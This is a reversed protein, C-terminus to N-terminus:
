PSAPSLRFFKGPGFLAIDFPSNAGPVVAWNGTVSDSHELVINPSGWVLSFAGAVRFVQLKPELTLIAPLSQVNERGASVRVQYQGADGATVNGIQVTASQAGSIRTGDTLAQNGFFWQYTLAAGKAASAAVHFTATDGTQRYQSTPQENILLQDLALLEWTENGALQSTGPDYLGGMIVVAHRRSDYAAAFRMRGSPVSPSRVIELPYADELLLRNFRILDPGKPNLRQLVLTEVSLSVAAFRSADFISSGKVTNNLNTELASKIEDASTNPDTLVQQTEASFQNWLFLSVPDAHANLKAVLNPLNSFDGESFLSSQGGDPLVSWTGSAGAGSKLFATTNGGFFNQFGNQGGFYVFQQGSDDFVMTAYSPSYITPTFGSARSHWDHGDWSWFYNLTFGDTTPGFLIEHSSSDYAMSGADQSFNSAPGNTPAIGRWSAGDWEWVTGFDGPSYGGYMVTVGRSADYAMAHSIRSVPGNTARIEWRLGDWEWTDSLFTDSGDPSTSRGGFLVVRGRKSDYAMAHQRRPVPVNAYDPLWRGTVQAWGSTLSSTTRQWWQAGNWEWIDGFEEFRSRDDSLKGGGFIISVGRTSDYAMAHGFRAPPGNTGRLVWQPIGLAAIGPLFGSELTYPGGSLEVGSCPQGVVSDISYGGGTLTGGGGVISLNITYTQALAVTVFLTLCIGLLTKKASM